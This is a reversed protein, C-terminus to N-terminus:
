SSSVTGHAFAPRTPADWPRANSQDVRDLGGGQEAGELAATLRDLLPSAQGKLLKRTPRRCRFVLRRPRNREPYERINTAPVRRALELRRFTNASPAKSTRSRRRRFRRLRHSSGERRAAEVTAFDIRTPGVPPPKGLEELFNKGSHQPGRTKARSISAGEELNVM